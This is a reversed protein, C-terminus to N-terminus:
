QPFVPRLAKKYSPDDLLLSGLKINKHLMFVPDPPNPIESIIGALTSKFVLAINEPDMNEIKQIGFGSAQGLANLSNDCSECCCVYRCQANSTRIDRHFTSLLSLMDNETKAVYFVISSDCCLLQSDGRQRVDDPLAWLDIRLILSDSVYLPFTFVKLFRFTESPDLDVGPVAEVFKRVIDTNQGIIVVKFGFHFRNEM